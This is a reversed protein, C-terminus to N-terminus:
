GLFREMALRWDGAKIRGLQKRAENPKEDVLAGVEQLPVFVHRTWKSKLGLPASLAATMELDADLGRPKAEGTSYPDGARDQLSNQMLMCVREEPASLDMHQITLKGLRKRSALALLEHLISLQLGLQGAVGVMPDSNAVVAYSELRGEDSIVSRMVLIPTSFLFQGTGTLIQQAVQPIGAEATGLSAYAQHLQKAPNLKYGPWFLLREDPKEFTVSVPQRYVLQGDKREGRAYLLDLIAPMATQLNRAKIVEM